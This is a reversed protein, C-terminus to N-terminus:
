SDLEHVLEPHLRRFEDAFADDEAYATEIEDLHDFYYAFAAYIAARPVWPFDDALQEPGMGNAKWYGIIDMVRISSDKIRARGQMYGPTKVIHTPTTCPIDEATHLAAMSDTYRRRVVSAATV